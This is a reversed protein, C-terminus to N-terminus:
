ELTFRSFGRARARQAIWAMGEVKSECMSYRPVQQWIDFGRDRVAGCWARFVGPGVETVDGQFQAGNAALLAPHIM